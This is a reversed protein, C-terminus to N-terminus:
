DDSIGNPWPGFPFPIDDSTFTFFQMIQFIYRSLARGLGLLYPNTDGTLLVFGAQIIAVGYVVMRTISFIFFFLLMYLIRIWTGRQMLNQQLDQDM